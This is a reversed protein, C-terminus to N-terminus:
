IPSLSAFSHAAGHTQCENLDRSIVRHYLLYYINEKFFFKFFHKKRLVEVITQNDLDFPPTTPIPRNALYYASAAAVGVGAMALMGAAGSVYHLYQEVDPGTHKLSLFTFMLLQNRNTVAVLLIPEEKKQCM